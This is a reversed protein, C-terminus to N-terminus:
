DPSDNPINLLQRITEAKPKDSQTLALLQKLTDPNTTLRQLRKIMKTEAEGDQIDNAIKGVLRAKQRIKDTQQGMESEASLTEFMTEIETLCWNIIVNADDDTLGDTLGEDGLISEILHQKLTTAEKQRRDLLLEGNVGVNEPPNEKILVTIPIRGYVEIAAETLGKVLQRKNEVELPEM